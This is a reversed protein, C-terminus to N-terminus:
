RMALAPFRHLWILNLTTSKVGPPSRLAWWLSLILPTTKPRRGFKNKPIELANFWYVSERDTPLPQGDWNLRVTLGQKPDVRSVPPSAIFPVNLAQPDVDEQGDDLWSQILLPQQGQNVM